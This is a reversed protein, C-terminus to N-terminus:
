RADLRHRARRGSPADAVRAEGGAADERVRCPAGRRHGQGPGGGRGPVLVLASVFFGTAEVRMTGGEAKWPSPSAPYMSQIYDIWLRAPDGDHDVRLFRYLHKESHYEEVSPSEDVLAKGNLSLKFVRSKPDRRQIPGAILYATYDGEPVTASFSLKEGEAAMVFTGSLADPWGTGGHIISKGSLMKSGPAVTTFGQLKEGASGFKFAIAGKPLPVALEAQRRGGAVAAPQRDCSPTATRRRRSSSSSRPSGPSDIKDKPELEDWERGEKGNRKARAIHFLLTQKGARLKQDITCRTPYGKTLGDWLELHLSAPGGEEMFVDVAFYDFGAWDKRAAPGFEVTGYDAGKKVVWRACAKGHTVGNDAVADLASGEASRKLDALDAPAEFSYLLRSNTRSGPRPCSPRVRPAATLLLAHTPERRSPLSM